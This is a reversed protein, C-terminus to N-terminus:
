LTKTDGACHYTGAIEERELYQRSCHSVLGCSSTKEEEYLAEM